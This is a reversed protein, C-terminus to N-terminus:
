CHLSAKLIETQLIHTLWTVCIFVDHYVSLLSDLPMLWSAHNVHRMLTQFSLSAELMGTQLMCSYTMDCLHFTIWTMYSFSFRYSGITKYIQSKKIRCRWAVCLSVPIDWMHSVYLCSDRTVYSCRHSGLIVEQYSLTMGCMIFLDRRVYWLVFSDCILWTTFVFLERIFKKFLAYRLYSYTVFPAHHLFSHTEFLYPM